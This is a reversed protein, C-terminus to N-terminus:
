DVRGRKQLLTHIQQEVAEFEEQTLQLEHPIVSQKPLKKLDIHMGKVTDIIRPDSTIKYWESLFNKLQGGVPLEPRSAQM